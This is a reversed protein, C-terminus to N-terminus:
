KKWPCLPALQLKSEDGERWPVGPHQLFHPKPNPKPGVMEGPFSSLAKWKSFKIPNPPPTARDKQRQKKWPSPCLADEYPHGQSAIRCSNITLNMGVHIKNKRPPPFLIVNPTLFFTHMHPQLPSCWFPWTNFAYTLRNFLLLVQSLFNKSNLVKKFSKKKVSWFLTIHPSPLLFM